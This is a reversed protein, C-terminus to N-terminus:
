DRHTPDNLSKAIPVIAILGGIIVVIYLLGKIFEWM